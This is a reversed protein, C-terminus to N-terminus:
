RRSLRRTVASSSVGSAHVITHYNLCPLAPPLFAKWILHGLYQIRRTVLSTTFPSRMGFRFCPLKASLEAAASASAEWLLEMAPEGPLEKESCVELKVNSRGVKCDGSM